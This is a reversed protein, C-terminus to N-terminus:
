GGHAGTSTDAAGIPALGVDAVGEIRQANQPWRGSIPDKTTSYFGNRKARPLIGRSCRDAAEGYSPGLSTASFSRPRRESGERGHARLLTDAAGIPAM